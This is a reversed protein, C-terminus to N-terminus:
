RQDEREHLQDLWSEPTPSAPQLVPLREITHQITAASWVAFGIMFAALVTLLGTLILVLLARSETPERHNM